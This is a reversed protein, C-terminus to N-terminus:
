VCRFASATIAWILGIIALKNKRLRIWADGWLTREPRQALDAAGPLVPTTTVETKLEHGEVDLPTTQPEHQARRDTRKSM